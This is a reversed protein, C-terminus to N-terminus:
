MRLPPPPTEHLAQGTLWAEALGAVDRTQSAQWVVEPPVIRAGPPSQPLQRALQAALEAVKQARVPLDRQPVMFQLQSLMWHALRQLPHPLRERRPAQATRLILLHEFGLETLAHEDLNALGARLADPLGGLTYPMVVLLHRVGRAHLDRALSLVEMPDPRFFVDERGNAHRERDFVILATEEAAHMPAAADGWLVPVLGHLAPQVPQTVLVSVQAFGHGALLQEMLASGLVGAGGAVLVRPGPVRRNKSAPSHGARLAEHILSM